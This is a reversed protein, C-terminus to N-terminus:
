CGEHLPKRDTSPRPEERWQSASISFAYFLVTIVSVAFQMGTSKHDQEQKYVCHLRVASVPPTEGHTQGSLADKGAARPVQHQSVANGGDGCM